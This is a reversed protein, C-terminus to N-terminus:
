GLEKAHKSDIPVRGNWALVWDGVTRLGGRAKWEKETGSARMRDIISWLLEDSVHRELTRFAWWQIPNRATVSRWLESLFDDPRLDSKAVGVLQEIADLASEVSSNDIDGWGGRARSRESSVSERRERFRECIAARWAREFRTM